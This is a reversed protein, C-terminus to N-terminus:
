WVVFTAAAAAAAFAAAAFAAVGFALKNKSWKNKLRWKCIDIKSTTISLWNKFLKQM